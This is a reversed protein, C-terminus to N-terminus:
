PDLKQSEDDSEDEWIRDYLDLDRESVRAQLIEPDDAIKLPQPPPMAQQLRRQHIINEVYSAGFAQYTLATRIAQLVEHAGYTDVLILIRALHNYLHIQAHVLGGLYCEAPGGLALFDAVSRERRARSRSEVLARAHEPKEIDGARDFSRPHTVM